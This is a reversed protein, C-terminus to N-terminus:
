SNAYRDSLFNLAEQMHKFIFVNEDVSLEDADNEKAEKEAERQINKLVDDEDHMLDKKIDKLRDTLHDLNVGAFNQPQPLHVIIGNSVPQITICNTSYM